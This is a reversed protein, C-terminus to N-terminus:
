PCRQYVFRNGGPSRASDGEDVTRTLSDGDRSLELRMLLTWTQGEGNASFNGDLRRDSVRTLAAPRAISEYFRIQDREIAMLGKADGRTSTCDEATIGWRGAFRDPIVTLPPEDQAAVAQQASDPPAPALVNGPPAVADSAVEAASNAPPPQESGCACLALLAAIIRKM